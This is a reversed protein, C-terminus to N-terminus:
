EKIIELAKLIAANLAEERLKFYCGKVASASNKEKNYFYAFWGEKDVDVIVCQGKNELWDLVEHYTPASIYKGYLADHYCEQAVEEVNWIEGQYWVHFDTHQEFDYQPYGVAKLKQATEFPVFFKKDM